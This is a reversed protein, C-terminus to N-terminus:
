LLRKQGYIDKCTASLLRGALPTNCVMIEITVNDLTVKKTMQIKVHQSFYGSSM